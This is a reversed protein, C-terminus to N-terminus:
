AVRKATLRAAQRCIAILEAEAAAEGAGGRQMVAREADLLRSISKAVLESSWRSIQRQIAEKEKWFLSKGNSAMVDAASRGTEVEAVLRALLNMRRLMARTLVIGRQGESRLRSLESVLADADGGAASDVLRSLEGGGSDAGLVDVADDDLTRPRTPDADLFLAYKELEKAIIARDYAADEAIRRAAGARVELGALRGQEVVLREADRLGPPYSAFAVANPSGLALKLLRSSPKLAGAIVAVPNGAVAAEVLAGAAESIEDGAQEVLIWRKEGFMSISAAEDSLRAPDSRLDSSALDIREADEGM